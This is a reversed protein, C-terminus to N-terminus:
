KDQPGHAGESKIVEPAKAIEQQLFHFFTALWVGGVAFFPVFYVWHFSLVGPSFAPTVMWWLDVCRMVLLGLAVMGLTSSKRKLDRSLLLLFPVAFHFLIVILGVWRWGGNMRHQYWSLEEALKGSWIILYQSFNFYAWIMVSMLLLKGMDHLHDPEKDYDPNLFRRLLILFALSTVLCDILFIAGYISSFWHPELSMLWDFAAFSVALIFLVMGLGSM